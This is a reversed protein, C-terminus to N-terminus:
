NRKGLLWQWFATFPSVAPKTEQPPFFNRAVPPLTDTKKPTPLDIVPEPSKPAHARDNKQWHRLDQPDAMYYGMDKGKERLYQMAQRIYSHHRNWEGFNDWRFERFIGLFYVFSELCEGVRLPEVELADDLDQHYILLDRKYPYHNLYFTEPSEEHMEPLVHLAAMYLRVFEGKNTRPHHYMAGLLGHFAILPTPGPVTQELLTLVEADNTASALRTELPRLSPHAAAHRSVWDRLFAPEVLPVVTNCVMALRFSHLVHYPEPIM